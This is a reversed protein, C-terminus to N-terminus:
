LKPSTGQCLTGWLSDSGLTTYQPLEDLEDSSDSWQSGPSACPQDSLFGTGDLSSPVWHSDKEIQQCIEIIDDAYNHDPSHDPSVEFRPLCNNSFSGPGITDSSSDSWQSGPSACPQDSLFGTGDLSSPVWHSNKEIQQCIEIIDDVSSHDPSHDPSREFRPLCNDSFSGPGDPQDTRVTSDVTNEQTSSTKVLRSRMKMRLMAMNVPNAQEIIRNSWLFKDEGPSRAHVASIGRRNMSSPVLNSELLLKHM